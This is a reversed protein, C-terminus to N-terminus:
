SRFKANLVSRAHNLPNEWDRLWEACALAILFLGSVGGERVRGYINIQARGIAVRM